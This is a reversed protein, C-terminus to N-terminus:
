VEQLDLGIQGCMEREWEEMAQWCSRISEDFGDRAVWTGTDQDKRADTYMCLSWWMNDDLEKASVGSAMPKNLLDRFIWALVQHRRLNSEEWKGGLRLASNMLGIVVGRQGSNPVACESLPVPVNKM